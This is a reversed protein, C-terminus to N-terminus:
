VPTGQPSKGQDNQRFNDWMVTLEVVAHGAKNKKIASLMLHSEIM